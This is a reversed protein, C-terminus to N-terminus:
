EGASDDNVARLIARYLESLDKKKPKKSWVKGMQEPGLILEIAAIGRNDEVAKAIQGDWEEADAPFTFKIGQWKIDITKLGEAEIQAATKKNNRKSSTAPIAGDKIESM